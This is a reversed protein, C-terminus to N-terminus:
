PDGPGLGLLNLLGVLDPGAGTVVLRSGYRRATLRLRAVAEATVVDPRAVAVDIVVVRAPHDRLLLALDACLAPIDARTLTAGVALTATM